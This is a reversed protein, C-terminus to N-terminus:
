GFKILHAVSVAHAVTMASLTPRRDRANSEKASPSLFPRVFRTREPYSDAIREAAARLSAVGLMKCADDLDLLDVCLGLAHASSRIRRRVERGLEWRAGHTVLITRPEFRGVAQVIRRKLLCTRRVTPVHQVSWSRVADLRMPGTAAAFGVRRSSLAIVLLPFKWARERIM